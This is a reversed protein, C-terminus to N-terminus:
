SSGKLFQIQKKAQKLFPSKQSKNLFIKLDSYAKQKQGLKNYAGASFFYPEYSPASCLSSKKECWKKAPNLINLASKFQGLEYLVRAHYLSLSCSNKKVTRASSLHQEALSHKKQKYYALGLHAHIDEPYRYSLDEKAKKLEFLASKLAGQEILTRGLHVRAATFNPELKLATKFHRVTKDYKKFQFYLLAISYHFLPRDKQLDLAKKLEALAVPYQCKQM